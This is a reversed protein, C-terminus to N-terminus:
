KNLFVWQNKSYEAIRGNQRGKIENYNVKLEIFVVNLTLEKDDIRIEFIVGLSKISDIINPILETSRAAAGKTPFLESIANSQIM